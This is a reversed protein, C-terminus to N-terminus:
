YNISDRNKGKMIHLKELCPQSELPEKIVSDNNNSQNTDSLSKYEPPPVDINVVTSTENQNTQPLPTAM